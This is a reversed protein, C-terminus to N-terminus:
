DANIRMRRIGTSNERGVHFGIELEHLFGKSLGASRCRCAFNRNAGDKHVVASDEGTRAVPRYAIAVGGGVRFNDDNAFSGLNKAIVAESTDGEIDANFWAAHAGAGHDLGANRSEDVAGVVGFATGDAGTEFDKGVGFEIMLDLDGKSDESFVGCGQEL